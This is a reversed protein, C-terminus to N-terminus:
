GKPLYRPGTALVVGPNIRLIAALFREVSSPPQCDHVTYGISHDNDDFFALSVSGDVTSRQIRELSAIPVVVRDISLGPRQRIRPDLGGVVLDAGRLEMLGLSHSLGEITNEGFVADSEPPQPLHRSSQRTGYELWRGVPKSPSM